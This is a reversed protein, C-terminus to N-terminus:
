GTKILRFAACKGCIDPRITYFAFRQELHLIDVRQEGEARIYLQLNEALLRIPVCLITIIRGNRCIPQGKGHTPM